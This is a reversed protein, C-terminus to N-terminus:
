AACWPWEGTYAKDLSPKIGAGHLIETANIRSAALLADIFYSSGYCAGHAAWEHAWLESGREGAVIPQGATIDPWYYNLAQALGALNPRHPTTGNLAEYRSPSGEGLTASTPWLGHITWSCAVLGGAMARGYEAALEARGRPQANVRTVPWQLALVLADYSRM